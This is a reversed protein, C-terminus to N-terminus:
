DVQLYKSIKRYVRSASKDDQYTFMIDRVIKRQKKKM